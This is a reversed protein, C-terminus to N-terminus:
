SCPARAKPIAAADWRLGLAVAWPQNPWPIASQAIPVIESGEVRVDTKSGVAAHNDQGTRQVDTMADRRDEGLDHTAYEPELGAKTLQSIPSVSSGSAPGVNPDEEVIPTPAATIAAAWSRTVFSRSPEECSSLSAGPAPASTATILEAPVSSSTPTPAKM